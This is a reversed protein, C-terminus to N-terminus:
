QISPVYTSGNDRTFLATFVAQCNGSSQSADVDCCIGVQHSNCEPGSTADTAKACNFHKFFPVYEHKNHVKTIQSAIKQEGEQTQRWKAFTQSKNYLIWSGFM